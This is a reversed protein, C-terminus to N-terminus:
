APGRMTTDGTRAARCQTPGAQPRPLSLGPRPLGLNAAVQPTPQPVAAGPERDAYDIASLAAIKQFAAATGERRFTSVVDELARTARDRDADPLLGWAPPEHAVLVRVQGPHRAILDLGILGGIGNGFVLAPETTLAAVLQHADDGHTAITPSEDSADITSRSLGRRDYTVVTYRDILQECLTDAADADGHGGRLILLLPGTGRVRYSLTAGSVGLVDDKTTSM